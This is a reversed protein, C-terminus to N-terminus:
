KLAPGDDTLWATAAIMTFVAKEPGASDGVARLAALTESVRAQKDPAALMHWATELDTWRVMIHADTPQTTNM